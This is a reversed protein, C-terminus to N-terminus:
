LLSFTRRGGDPHPFVLFVSVLALTGGTQSGYKRDGLLPFGRSAFQVRIQHTRGTFLHVRVLADEGAQLVRYSLRAPKVGRRSRSVVYTKNKQRDHYLLDEMEGEPPQPTGHCRLLYEKEFGNGMAACLFAATQADKAFVMLGAAERDLRHVPFLARPALLDTVAPKGSADKASLVGHPKVCVVLRADEYVVSFDTNM